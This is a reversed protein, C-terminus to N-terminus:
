AFTRAATRLLDLLDFVRTLYRDRIKLKADGQGKLETELCDILKYLRRQHIGLRRQVPDTIVGSFSTLLALGAAITGTSAIVLGMSASVPFISYYLSGLTPGLAFSSIATKQAIAAAVATGTALAGPTMKNLFTAGAALSIVSGALDAAATRSTAYEQLNGELAFRFRPDHSKSHIEELEKSVCVLIEPQLLIEELLADKLSKRNGQVYPLELLETHVLWSVERQVQTEFGPPLREVYSPIKKLGMKKLAASSLRLGTYPLVWLINAPAKYLDSGLAKRNLRLAGRFSFNGKVFAPIRENRSKVYGQIARDLAQEFGRHDNHPM